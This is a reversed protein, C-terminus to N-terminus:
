CIRIDFIITSLYVYIYLINFYIYLIAHNKKWLTLRRNINIDTQNKGTGTRVVSDLLDITDVPLAYMIQGQNLQIQEPEITWM